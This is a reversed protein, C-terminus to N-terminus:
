LQIAAKSKWHTVSRRQCVENKIIIAFFTVQGTLLSIIRGKALVYERLRQFKRRLLYFSSSRVSTLNAAAVDLFVERIRFWNAFSLSQKRQVPFGYIVDGTIEASSPTLHQLLNKDSYLTQCLEEGGKNGPVGHFSSLASTDTKDQVFFGLIKPSTFRVSFNQTAILFIIEIYCRLTYTFIMSLHLPVVLDLSFCSTKYFM